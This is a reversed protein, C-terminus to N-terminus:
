ANELAEIKANATDLKDSLEQIAKIMMPIMRTTSLSKFDDVEVGDIKASGIEVYQSAVELVDDAILGFRTKGDDVGLDTKGNYQFTKPKLQNVISLGDELDIINKKARKDSLSSISGDNTYTDGGSVVKFVIAHGGDSSTTTSVFFSKFKLITEPNCKM